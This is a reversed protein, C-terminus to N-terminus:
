FIESNFKQERFLRYSSNFWENIETEIEVFSIIRVDVVGYLYSFPVTLENRKIKLIKFM